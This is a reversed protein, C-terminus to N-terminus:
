GSGGPGYLDYVVRPIQERFQSLTGLLPILETPRRRRSAVLIWGGGTEFAFASDTQLLWRMMRQDVFDNAFRRDKCKVNFARNFEDLEFQVDDLGVSDALRTFVNERGLSLASLLAEVPAVACSFHSYSRSRHGNSDTTEDYFWYDFERVEIGQWTGSLVNEVGRGDGRRLLGFPLALCGYPDEESYALGLQRAVVALEERRKKKLYYSVGVAVAVGIVALVILFAM